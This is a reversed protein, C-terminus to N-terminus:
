KLADVSWNLGVVQLDKGPQLNAAGVTKIAGLATPDNGGWIGCCGSIGARRLPSLAKPPVCPKTPM